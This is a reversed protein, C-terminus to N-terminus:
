KIGQTHQIEGDDIGIIKIHIRDGIVIGQQVKEIFSVNQYAEATTLPVESEKGEAKQCVNVVYQM